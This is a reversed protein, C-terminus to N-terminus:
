VWLRGWKLGRTLGDVFYRMETSDFPNHYNM